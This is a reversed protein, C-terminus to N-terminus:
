ALLPWTRVWAKAKPPSPPSGQTYIYFKIKFITIFDYQLYLMVSDAVADVYM